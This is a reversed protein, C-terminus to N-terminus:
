ELPTMLCATEAYDYFNEYCADLDAVCNEAEELYADECEQPPDEDKVCICQGKDFYADSDFEM